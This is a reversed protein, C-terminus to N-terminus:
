AYRKAMIITDGYTGDARLHDGPLRAEEVFGTSRYLAIANTNDAFVKLYLKRLGIRRGWDIAYDTLVRGVGQRWFAKVVCLGFEAHHHFRRREDGAAGAYAIIRGELEVAVSFSRPKANHERIFKREQEITMAFEGPLYNLFDSEVHTQPLIECLQEADDETMLRLVCERGDNLTISMPLDFRASPQQDHPKEAM